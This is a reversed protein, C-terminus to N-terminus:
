EGFATRIEKSFKRDSSDHPYFYSILTTPAISHKINKFRSGGSLLKRSIDGDIKKVKSSMKTDGVRYILIAFGNM